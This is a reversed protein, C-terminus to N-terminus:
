QKKLNDTNQKENNINNNLNGFNTNNTYLIKNPNMSTNGNNKNCIINLPRFPIDNNFKRKNIDGGKQEMNNNNTSNNINMLNNNTSNIFASYPYKPSDFSISSRFYNDNSARLIQKLTDGDDDFIHSSNNRNFLNIEMLSPKQQFLFSSQSPTQLPNIILNSGMKRPGFDEEIQRSSQVINPKDIDIFNNVPCEIGTRNNISGILNPSILMKNNTPNLIFRNINSLSHLLNNPTVSSANNNIIFKNSNNNNEKIFNNNNKNLINNYNTNNLIENKLNQNAINKNKTNINIFPEPQLIQKNLDKYQDVNLNIKNSNIYNNNIYNNNIYNNNIYNNDNFNNEGISKNVNSYNSNNNINNTINNNNINNNIINNNEKSNSINNDNMSSLISNNNNITANNNNNEKKVDVYPLSMTLIRDVIYNYDIYNDGCYINFPSNYEKFRENIEIYSFNSKDNIKKENIKYWKDYNQNFNQYKNKLYSNIPEIQSDNISIKKIYFCLFLLSEEMTFTNLYLSIDIYELYLSLLILEFENLLLEKALTMFLKNFNYKGEYQELHNRKIDIIIKNVFSVCILTFENKIYKQFMNQYLISENDAYKENILQINKQYKTNNNEIKSKDNSVKKMIENIKQKLRIMDMEKIFQDRDRKKNSVITRKEKPKISKTKVM